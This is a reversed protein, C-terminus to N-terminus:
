RRMSGSGAGPALGPGEALRLVALLGGGPRDELSVDGGHGRAVSRAVALGLGSGGTERSRSEELRFFPEFVRERLAEPIGPGRDGIRVEIWPGQKALEVDARGGYAVANAILNDLARRLAVQRGTYALHAPGAYTVAHGADCFGDCATQVLEALDVRVLPESRAEERALALTAELMAQMEDLDREAKARAAQDGILELRLRLRTLPTRLDHSIAALMRIRDEVLRKLRQQMRNFAAAASRLERSGTEPLPPADLDLGLREAADALRRIPAAVRRAMLLAILAVIGLTIAAAVALRWGPSPALAEPGLALALWRGRDLAVAIELRPRFYGFGEGADARRPLHRARLERGPLAAALDDLLGAHWRRWGTGPEDVFPPVTGFRIDFGRGSAAAALLPLTAPEAAEALNVVAVIRDVLRSPWPPAPALEREGLWAVAVALAALGVLAVLLLALRGGFGLGGRRARRREHWARIM